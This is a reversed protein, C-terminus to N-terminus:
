LSGRSLVEIMQAKGTDWTNKVVQTITASGINTNVTYTVTVSQTSVPTFTILANIEAPVSEYPATVELGGGKPIYKFSKGPFASTYKGSITVVNNTHQITIYSDNISSTVSNITVEVAEPSSGGEESPADVLDIYTVTQSFTDGENVEPFQTTSPSLAM